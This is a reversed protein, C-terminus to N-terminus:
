TGAIGMALSIIEVISLSMDSSRFAIISLILLCFIMLSTLFIQLKDYFCVDVSNTKKREKRKKEIPM